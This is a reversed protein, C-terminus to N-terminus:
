GGVPSFQLSAARWGADGSVLISTLLAGVRGMDRGLPDVLGSLVFRQQVVVIGPALDRLRMKGTVLRSRAFTGALEAKLTAEIRARGDCWAGTLTLMDADAAALAALGAADRAGWLQAFSRSFAEPTETM